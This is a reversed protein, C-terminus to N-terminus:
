LHKKMSSNLLTERKSRFRAYNSQNVMSCPFRADPDRPYAFGSGHAKECVFNLLNRKSRCSAILRRIIIAHTIM